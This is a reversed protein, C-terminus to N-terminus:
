GDRGLAASKALHRDLQTEWGELSQAYGKKGPIAYTLSVTLRHRVDFDSNAYEAGPNYANQPLGSGYGFDWNAGVNDLAHSYTYGAVMSLGHFNRANLTTQLGNYNSRYVNAMNFINALYPFKSAFPRSAEETGNADAVCNNYGASASALCLDLAGTGMSNTDWGSGVPPQNIDRIGTLNGGHNGVYALELTLNPTFAHQLSLTWNWVYPTTLNRDVSMIPCPSANCDIAASNGYLPTNDWTLNNPPNNLFNKVTINGTTITGGPVVSATPVSGPGFANNFAIFSQWNVTEYVLGAGGRIVTKGKGTTDWAFGFRPAFNKHDSNYLSPIRGAGTNVQVLGFTSNADFNGLLNHQEQPVSSFEYRLGFNM